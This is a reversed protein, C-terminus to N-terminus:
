PLKEGRQPFALYKDEITGDIIDIIYRDAVFDFVKFDFNEDRIKAKIRSIIYQAKDPKAYCLVLAKIYGPEYNQEDQISRMWLPLFERDREGVTSIRKRMNKISNPFIRQHDADSVLPIDSDIKISDYSILVKSNIKDPLQVTQSISKGNKELDDKIEVYVVEYVTNQTLPDKAKAYKLDGFKLRKNYHNRSMAQVYKIAETSEIGAFVLMKLETQVSFNVDGYRYLDDARFINADTIFNFWELRKNKSQFAKVYLNAFTKTTEAVVTISFDKFSETFNVSDRAKVTFTYKKDFSTTEGDFTINFERTSGNLDFFRTLGPSNVDAFQKVKGIINGNSTFSLGPPLNGNVLEYIVSGGYLLSKAEVSKTSPQNPKISGLDSGSIWSIGSEIEGIIDITFTKETDSVTSYWYTTDIPLINKCIKICIYITNDYRVADGVQYITTSSWDGRLTYDTTYPNDDFSVADITFKFSRTVRAQYPIRGAIEGTIQDLELGPPLDSATEPTIVDWDGAQTLRNLQKEALPFRPMNGSIEWRGFYYYEDTYKSKYTGPNTKLFYSIYGNLSSPHYVELFITLYNNARHRGLYSETIWIPFRRGDSSAQFLNTDVQLLTNDAKLFEESVVYIKFVRTVTNIGDTVAIAFTYIRSLKKPDRSVLSYDYITDDYLYSDYGRSKADSFDLPINDYPYTDYAGSTLANYEVSFVPDTFGFIRGDESLSLGPPLSGGTPVLYYKLVDGAITDPDTVELQFDVKANDLIFYANDPGVNLFGEKTVWSPVDSGDISLSFTRDELDVGDSARIVFRSIALKNVESPSGVILNNKLRLGRPLKGSILSFTVPNSTTSSALLPISITIRETLLGLSGAPTAWTLAM